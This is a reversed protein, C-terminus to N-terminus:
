FKAYIFTQTQLPALFLIALVLAYYLGWRFALPRADLGELWENSAQLRHGLEMVAVGGALLMWQQTTWGKLVGWNASDSLLAAPGSVFGAVFGRLIARADGFTEARFVVLAVVMMHLTVLPGAYRRVRALRPHRAFFKDRARLTLASGAVYCAIIAGFVVYSARAGHWIGIALMNVAIAIVLGLKGLDRLTMHLPTFLYRRLWDTLTMHWRRWFDQINAAYFPSDFNKPARVGFLCGTGIAIDTLGSFDAYLQLAFLYAAAWRTCSPYRHPAAFVQDVLIAARDAIVAKKFFGFLILRFGAVLLGPKPVQAEAEREFFDGSRQIPGAVIQPFFAAYRLVSWPDRRAEVDGWYVDVVYSILKFIYYSIGIPIALSALTGGVGAAALGVGLYKFTALVALLLVVAAAVLRAQAREDSTRAIGLALAYAILGCCILLATHPVDFLAYFGLSCALVFGRRARAPIMWHLTAAATLFVVFSASNFLM